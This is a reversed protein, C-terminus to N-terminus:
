VQFQSSAYGPNPMGGEYRREDMVREEGIKMEEIRGWRKLETAM